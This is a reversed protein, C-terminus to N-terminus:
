DADDGPRLSGRGFRGRRPMWFARRRERESVMPSSPEAGTRSSLARRQAAFVLKAAAEYEASGPAMVNRLRYEWEQRAPDGLGLRTPDDPEFALATAEIVEMHFSLYPMKATDRLPGALRVGLTCQRGEPIRLQSTAKAGGASLNTLSCPAVRGEHFLEADLTQHEPELRFSERQNESM